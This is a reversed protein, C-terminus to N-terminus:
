TSRSRSEEPGNVSEKEIIEVQRAHDLFGFIEARTSGDTFRLVEWAESATLGEMFEATRAPHLASCFERLGGEDQEALMERLEPLYLSNIMM